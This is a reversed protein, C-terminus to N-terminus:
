APGLFAMKYQKPSMGEYKKFVKSFYSGDSYGLHHGIQTISYDTFVMYMKARMLKRLHIYDMVSVGMYRRFLRSLYSQSINCADCISALNIDNKIETDIYDFVSQLYDHRRIIGSRFAYDMVDTLWITWANENKAFAENIPFREGLDLDKYFCPVAESLIGRAIQIFKNSILEKNVPCNQFVERVENPVSQIMAPYDHGHYLDVMKRVIDQDEEQDGLFLDIIHNIDSFSVPKVLYDRIKSALTKRIVEYSSLVSIIFIEAAPNIRNISRAAEIGTIGPLAIDMLVMHVDNHRCFEVAEEGYSVCAAVEFDEFRSLATTLAKCMLLEDDVILVKYM